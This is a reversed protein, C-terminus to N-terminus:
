EPAAIEGTIGDRFVTRLRIVVRRIDRPVFEAVADADLYRWASTRTMVVLSGVSALKGV